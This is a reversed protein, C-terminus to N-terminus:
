KKNDTLIIDETSVNSKKVLSCHEGNNTIQSYAVIFLFTIRLFANLSWYDHSASLINSPFSLSPKATLDGPTCNNNGIVEGKISFHGSEQPFFNKSCGNKVTKKYQKFGTQAYFM